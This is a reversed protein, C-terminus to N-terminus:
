KKEREAKKRREKRLKSRYAALRAFSTDINDREIREKTKRIFEEYSMEKRSM